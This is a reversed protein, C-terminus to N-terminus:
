TAFRAFLPAALTAERHGPAVHTLYRALEARASDLLARDGRLDGVVFAALMREVFPIASGHDELAVRAALLESDALAGRLLMAMATAPRLDIERATPLVDELYARASALDGAALAMRAAITKIRLTNFPKADPADALSQALVAHGEAFEGRAEHLLARTVVVAAADAETARGREIEDILTAAEDLRGTYLLVGVLHLQTKQLYLRHDDARARDAAEHLHAEAEQMRGRATQAVGLMMAAYIALDQQDYGEIFACLERCGAVAEALRGVEILLLNCSIWAAVERRLNGTERALERTREMLPIAEELRGELRTTKGLLHLSALESRRDLHVAATQYASEGLLRATEVDGLALEIEGVHASTAAYRWPDAGDRALALAENAAERAQEGEGRRLLIMALQALAEGQTGTDEAERAFAASQDAAMHAARVEGARGLSTALGLALRARLAPERAHELAREYVEVAETPVRDALSRGIVGLAFAHMSAPVREAAADVRRAMREARVYEGSNELHELGAPLHPAAKEVQDALLRHRALAFAAAPDLAHGGQHAAQLTDALAGHYARKLAPTLEDYLAEQVLHHRFRYTDGDARILGHERDLVHLRRLGRLQPVELTECVVLPDWREGSCAALSLLERSAEDLAALRADVIQRISAPIEIRRLSATTSEDAVERHRRKIERAFELVCFPSGDSMRVLEHAGTTRAAHEGLAEALLSRIATEGLGQLRLLSAATNKDVEHRAELPVDPRSTGVLLIGAAPLTRAFTRFLTWAAEGGFHLDEMVFVLPQEAALAILLREYIENRATGPVHLADAAREGELAQHAFAALREDGLLKVLRAELDDGKLLARLADELPPVALTTAGPAYAAVGIRPPASRRELAAIWEAVLRSKGLGGEGEIVLAHGTGAAVQEHLARLRELEEERGLFSVWDDIQMRRTRADSAAARSRWWTSAEREELLTEVEAASRLRQEPDPELLARVVADLFPSVGTRIEAPSPAEGSSLPARGAAGRLPHQATVLEYLLLGLAYLDAAPGPEAGRIQEPAAYLLSGVFEGTRSFRAAREMLFSVGLDMLKVTEDSTIVVNEPKVDRHVIGQEHLVRLAGAVRQGILCALREPVAGVDDLLARLSQGEIFELVIFPSTSGEVECTDIDLTAVIAPDSVRQGVEAEQLFREHHRAESLLHPHILKLAVRDGNPAEGEFVRGMGGRGVERLVRYPGLEGLVNAPSAARAPPVAGAGASELLSMVPLVRRLEDEHRPNAAVIAELDLHEGARLREALEDLLVDVSPSREGSM